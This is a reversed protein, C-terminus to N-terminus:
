KKKLTKADEIFDNMAKDDGSGIKYIIPNWVSITLFLLEDLTEDDQDQGYINKLEEVCALLGRSWKLGEEQNEIKVYQFFAEHLLNTWKM